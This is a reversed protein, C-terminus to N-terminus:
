TTSAPAETGKVAVTGSLKIDAVSAGILIDYKSGDIEFKDTKVNFYAELFERLLRAIDGGGWQGELLGVTLTGAYGRSVIQVRQILNDTALQIGGLESALLAGAPTLRVQKQDRIVLQANLEQELSM